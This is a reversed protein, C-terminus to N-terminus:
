HPPESIQRIQAVVKESPPRYRPNLAELLRRFTPREVVHSPLRECIIFEILAEDIRKAIASTRAYVDFRQESLMYKHTNSQQKTKDKGEDGGAYHQAIESTRRMAWAVEPRDGHLAKLHGLMGHTSSSNFALTRGCFSCRVRKKGESDEIVFFEWVASRRTKERRILGYDESGGVVPTPELSTSPSISSPIPLPSQGGGNSLFEMERRVDDDGENAMRIEWISYIIILFLSATLVFSKN